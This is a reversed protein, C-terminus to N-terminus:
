WGKLELSELEELSMARILIREESQILSFDQLKELAEKYELYGLPEDKSISFFSLRWKAEKDEDDLEFNEWPKKFLITDTDESLTFNIILGDPTEYLKPMAEYAEKWRRQLLKLDEM